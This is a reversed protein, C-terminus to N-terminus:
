LDEGGTAAVTQHEFPNQIGLSEGQEASPIPCCSRTPLFEGKSVQQCLDRSEAGSFGQNQIANTIYM